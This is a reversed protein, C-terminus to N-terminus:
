TAALIRLAEDRINLCANEERQHVRRCRPCAWVKLRHEKVASYQYGCDHCIQSSPFYRGVRVLSRGYWEAKYALMSVFSRWGSDAIRRADNSGNESLLHRVDLDEVGIIGYKRILETSLKQHHDNRFASGREHLQAVKLRQAEYRRSGKTKRSLVRQKHKLRRLLKALPEPNPIHRLGDSLVALDTLGLDIGLADGGSLKEPEDCECLVSVYYKGSPTREVSASLIRGEVPRSVKAKVLGLKPLRVAKETVCISCNNNKTTYSDRHDRKSKFKPYGSHREFMNKFATDLNRLASQLATSDAENLWLHDPDRKLMTLEESCRNYSVNAYNLQYEQKRMALFFNYVFRVCGFIRAVAERQERDPYLRYRFAKHIM